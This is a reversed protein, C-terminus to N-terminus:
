LEIEQGPQIILRGPVDFQRAMGADFLEGPKMHIPITRRAGIKAACVAAEIPNMNYIGDIPLLAYDLFAQLMGTMAETESTDGAAYIKIGDLTIFYGVCERPDHNENMAPVASVEAGPLEFRQYQGNVLAEHATIVRCGYCQTILEVCNHDEHDHTVLVLDAPLDYGDGAYPDVYIVYGGSGTLRFSGHGQYLLKAIVFM